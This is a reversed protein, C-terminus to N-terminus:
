CFYIIMSNKGEKLNREEPVFLPHSCCTNTWRGPFTIKTNSRQQMLLENNQNFIFLSFARHLPAIGSKPDVLHCLRKSAQGLEHDNEDVLICQENLLAEQIPDLREANTSCFRSLNPFLLKRSIMM